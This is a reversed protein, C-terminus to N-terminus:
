VVGVVVQQLRDDGGRTGGGGRAHAVSKVDGSRIPGRRVPNARTAVFFLVSRWLRAKPRLGTVREALTDLLRPVKTASRPDEAAKRTFKEGVVFASGPTPCRCGRRGRQPLTNPLPLPGLWVAAPLAM